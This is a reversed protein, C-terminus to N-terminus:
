LGDTRGITQRVHVIAVSCDQLNLEDLALETPMQALWNLRILILRFGLFLILSSTQESMGSSKALHKRLTQFDDLDSHEVKQLLLVQALVKVLVREM